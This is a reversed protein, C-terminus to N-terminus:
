HRHWVELEQVDTRPMFGAMWSVRHSLNPGISMPTKSLAIKYPTPRMMENRATFVSVNVLDKSNLYTSM